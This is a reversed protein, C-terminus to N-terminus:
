DSNPWTLVAETASTNFLEHESETLTLYVWAEYSEKLRGENVRYPRNFRRFIRNLFAVNEETLSTWSGSFNQRITFLEKRGADQPIPCYAGEEEPHLCAFGASQNTYTIGTNLLLIIGLGEYGSLDISSVYSSDM